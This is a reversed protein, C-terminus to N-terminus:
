WIAMRRARLPAERARAQAAELSREAEVVAQESVFGRAQMEHQRQVRDRALEAAVDVGDPEGIGHFAGAMSQRAAILAAFSTGCAPRKEALIM